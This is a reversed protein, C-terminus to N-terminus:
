NRDRLRHLEDSLQMNQTILEECMKKLRNITELNTISLNASTSSPKLLSIWSFASQNAASSVAAGPFKTNPIGAHTIPNHSGDSNAVLRTHLEAQIIKSKEALQSELRQIRRRFTCNEEQVESMRDILAKFDAMSFLGSPDPDGVSKRETDLHNVALEGNSATTTSGSNMNSSLSSSSSYVSSRNLSLQELESQQARVLRCLQRRLERNVKEGRSRVIDLQGRLDRETDAANTIVAESEHLRELLTSREIFLESLKSRLGCLDTQVCSELESLKHELTSITQTLLSNTIETVSLASQLETIVAFSSASDTDTIADFIEDTQVFANCSSSICLATQCSQTQTPKNMILELRDLETTLRHCEARLTSSQLQFSSETSLLKERLRKNDQLVDQAHAADYKYSEALKLATCLEEELQRVRAEARLRMDTAQIQEERLDLLQSQFRQFEEASIASEM